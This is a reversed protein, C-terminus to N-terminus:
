ASAKNQQKRSNRKIIITEIGTHVLKIEETLSVLNGTSNTTVQCGCNQCKYHKLHKTIKKTLRFKHGTISCLLRQINTHNVLYM